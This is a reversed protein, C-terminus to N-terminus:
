QGGLSQLVRLVAEPTMSAASALRGDATTGLTEGTPSVLVVAPIGVNIPDGYQKSVDLNHDWYGVDIRVVHVGDLYDTFSPDEFMRSLVVCDPCWDAGFDLLVPKGDASAAALAADIDASPDAGPDYIFASSPAETAPPPPPDTAPPADTARPAESAVAAASEPAATPAATANPTITAL